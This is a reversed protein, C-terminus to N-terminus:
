NKGMERLMADVAADSFGHSPSLSGLGDGNSLSGAQQNSLQEAMAEGYQSRHMGGTASRGAPTPQSQMSIPPTTMNLEDPLDIYDGYSSGQALGHYAGYGQMQPPAAVVPAVPTKFLYPALFRGAIYGVGGGVVLALNGYKKRFKFHGLGAGAAALGYPLLTKADLAM